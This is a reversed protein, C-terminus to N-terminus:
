GIPIFKITLETGKKVPTENIEGSGIVDERIISDEALEISAFEINNDKDRNFNLIRIKSDDALYKETKGENEFIPFHGPGLVHNATWETTFEKEKFSNSLDEVKEGNLFRDIFVFKGKNYEYYGYPVKEKIFPLCKPFIYRDGIKVLSFNEFKSLLEVENNSKVRYIWTNDNLSGYISTIIEKYNDSTDFDFVGELQGEINSLENDNLYIKEGNEEIVKITYETNDSNFTYQKKDDLNYTNINEYAGNELVYGDYIKYKKIDDINDNVVEQKSEDKVNKTANNSKNNENKNCGILLVVLILSIVILVKKM